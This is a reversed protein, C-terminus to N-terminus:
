GHSRPEAPPLEKMAQRNRQPGGAPGDPKARLLASVLGHRAGREREEPREISPSPPLRRKRERVGLPLVPV